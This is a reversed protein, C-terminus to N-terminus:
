AAEAHEMLAWLRAAETFKLMADLQDADVDSRRHTSIALEALVAVQSDTDAKSNWRGCAATISFTGSNV